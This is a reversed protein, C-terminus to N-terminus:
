SKTKADIEAKIVTGIKDASPAGNSDILGTNAIYKGDL